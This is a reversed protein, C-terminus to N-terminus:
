KSCEGYVYLFLSLGMRVRVADRRQLWEATFIGHLIAHDLFRRDSRTGLIDYCKVHSVWDM